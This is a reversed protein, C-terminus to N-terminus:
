LLSSGRKATEKLNIGIMIEHTGSTYNNLNSFMYDFAYGIVIHKYKAGLMAVVSNGAEFPVGTRYSVGAWYNRKYYTKINLDVNMPSSTTYKLMTSPEIDIENTIKFKYGGMLFYHRQLTNEAADLTNFKVKYEILQNASFGVFFDDNHWYLGFNADPVFATENAYAVSPDNEDTVIAGTTNFAYQFAMFSVGMALKSDWLGVPLIYSFAGQIGVKSDAGFRDSFVYGGVGITQNAILLNGSLSQTSPAEDLGVWQQRATLRIPIYDESGAVAPNLLFKNNMYQSYMPLQQAMSLQGLLLGIISLLIIKKM